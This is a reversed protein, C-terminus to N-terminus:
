RSSSDLNLKIAKLAHSVFQGTPYYGNAGAPSPAAANGTVAAAAKSSQEPHAALRASSMNGLM